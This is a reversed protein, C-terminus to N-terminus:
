RGQGTIWKNKKAIKLLPNYVFAAAKKSTDSLSTHWKTNEQVAYKMLELQKEFFSHIGKQVDEKFEEVIRTRQNLMKNEINTLENIYNLYISSEAKISGM